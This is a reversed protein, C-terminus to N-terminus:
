FIVETSSGLFKGLADGVLYQYGYLGGLTGPNWFTFSGHGSADVPLLFPTRRTAAPLFHTHYLYGPHHFTQETAAMSSQPAFLLYVTGNPPAGNVDLTVSGVGVTVGSGSATVVPRAPDIRNHMATAASFDNTNYKLNTGNAPQYSQFNAAGGGLNVFELNSIAADAVAIEEAKAANPRARRIRASVLNFNSDYTNEAVFVRDKVPDTRLASVPGYGAGWTQANGADLFAAGAVLSAHWRLIDSSTVLGNGDLALQAYFVDGNSDVAIPGTPWAAVGIITTAGSLLDVKVLDTQSASATADAVVILETSSLFAADYSYFLTAVFTTGSGDLEARYIEGGPGPFSGSHGLVLASGDPTPLMWAAFHTPTSGLNMVFAGAATYRDISTGDYVAVDGGPLTCTVMGNFSYPGPLPQTDLAFGASVSDACVPLLPVLALAGALVFRRM